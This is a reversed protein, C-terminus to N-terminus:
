FIKTFLGVALLILLIYAVKIEILHWYWEITNVFSRVFEKM